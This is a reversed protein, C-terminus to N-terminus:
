SLLEAIDDVFRERRYYDEYAQRANEIIANREDDHQLYHEVKEVLDSNDWEVPVYTEYPRILDPHIEVHDVRPQVFLSGNVVAEFVRMTVEGWGMPSFTIKCTKAGEVYQDRPLRPEGTFEAAVSTKRHKLKKLEDIAAMRMRGYWEIDDRPGCSVHCFVDLTKERPETETRREPRSALRRVSKLISRARYVWDFDRLDFGNALDVASSIWGGSQERAPLLDTPVWSWACSIKGQLGPEVTSGVHWGDLSYGYENALKHTMYNGGDYTNLYLDRDRLGQYKVFHEVYPLVGFFRSSTQDFPDLFIIRRNRSAIRRMSDVITDVDHRWSPRIMVWENSHRRLISDIDSYHQYRVRKLSLGLRSRLSDRHYEFPFLQWHGVVDIDKPVLTLLQTKTM